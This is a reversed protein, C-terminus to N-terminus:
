FGEFGLDIRLEKDKFWDLGIQFELRHMQYDCITLIIKSMYYFANM